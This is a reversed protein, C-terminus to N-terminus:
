GGTLDDFAVLKQKQKAAEIQAPKLVPPLTVAAEAATPREEKKVVKKENLGFVDDDSDKGEEGKRDSDPKQEHQELFKAKSSGM